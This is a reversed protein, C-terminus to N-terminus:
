QTINEGLNLQVGGLMAARPGQLNSISSVAQWGGTPEAPREGDSLSFPRPHALISGQGPNM